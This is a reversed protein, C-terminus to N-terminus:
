DKIVLGVYSICTQLCKVTTGTSFIKFREIGKNLLQSFKASKLHQQTDIHTHTHRQSNNGILSAGM